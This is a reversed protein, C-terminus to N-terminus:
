SGIYSVIAIVVSVLLIVCIVVELIKGGIDRSM